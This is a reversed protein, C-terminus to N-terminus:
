SNLFITEFLRDHTTERALSLLRQVKYLSSRPELILRITDEGRCSFVTGKYRVEMGIEKRAPRFRLNATLHPEARGPM